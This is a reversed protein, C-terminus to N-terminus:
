FVREKKMIESVQKDISDSSEALKDVINKYDVDNRNQSMKKKAEMSEIALKFGVIGRIERSVMKETMTDVTRANERGHEFVQTLQTVSALLEEASLKQLTGYVHVSVYNWTSVNENAYWSSSIYSHPGAFIVLAQKGKEIADIIPNGKAVHGHLIPTTEDNQFLIPIHVAHIKGADDTASLIAFSNKQVFDLVESENQWANIKPIYM